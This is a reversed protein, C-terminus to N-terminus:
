RFNRNQGRGGGRHGGNGKGKGKGRKGNPKPARCSIMDHGAQKCILCWPKGNVTDKNFSNRHRPDKPNVGPKIKGDHGVRVNWEADTYNTRFLRTSVRPQENGNGYAFLAAKSPKRSTVRNQSKKYIAANLHGKQSFRGNKRQNTRPNPNSRNRFSTGGRKAMSNLSENRSSRAANNVALERTKAIRFIEDVSYSLHHPRSTIFESLPASLARLVLARDLDSNLPKAGLRTLISLKNTRTTILDRVSGKGQHLTLYDLLAAEKRGPRDYTKKLFKCISDFPIFDSREAEYLGKFKERSFNARVASAVKPDLASRLCLPTLYVEKVFACESMFLKRWQTSDIQSGAKFKANESLREPYQLSRPVKEKEKDEYRKKALDYYMDALEKTPAKIVKELYLARSLGSEKIRARHEPQELLNDFFEKPPEGTGSLSSTSSPSPISSSSASLTAMEITSHDAENASEDSSEESTEDLSSLMDSTIAGLYAHEVEIVAGLSSLSERQRSRRAKKKSVTKHHKVNSHDSKNRRSAKHKKATRKRSWREFDAKWPVESKNTQKERKSSSRTPSRSRDSRVPSRSRNDREEDRDIGKTANRYPLPSSSRSRRRRTRHPKLHGKSKEAARKRRYNKRQSDRIDLDSDSSSDDSESATDLWEGEESESNSSRHSPPSAERTKRAKGTSRGENSSEESSSDDYDDTDSTAGEIADEHKNESRKRKRDDNESDSSGSFHPSAPPQSSTNRGESKSTPHARKHESERITGRDGEPNNEEKKKAGGLPDIGMHEILHDTIKKKAGGLPDIGMHEILHDTTEKGQKYKAISPSPSNRRTPLEKGDRRSIYQLQPPLAGNEKMPSSERRISPESSIELNEGKAGAARAAPAGATPIEGSEVTNKAKRRASNERKRPARFPVVPSIRGSPSKLPLFPQVNGESVIDGTRIAAPISTGTVSGPYFSDDQALRSNHEETTEQIKSADRIYDGLSFVERIEPHFLLDNEEAYRYLQVDDTEYAQQIPMFREPIKDNEASGKVFLRKGSIYHNVFTACHRIGNGEEKISLDEAEAQRIERELEMRYQKATKSTPIKGKKGSKPDKRSGKKEDFKRKRSKESKSSSYNKESLTVTHMEGGASLICVEPSAPIAHTNTVGFASLTEKFTTDSQAPLTDMTVSQSRQLKSPWCPKSFPVSGAASIHSHRAHGEGAQHLSATSTDVPTALQHAQKGDDAAAPETRHIGATYRSPDNGSVPLVHQHTDTVEPAEQEPHIAQSVAEEDDHRHPNNEDGRNEILPGTKTRMAFSPYRPLENSTMPHAKALAVVQEANEAGYLQRYVKFAETISQRARAEANWRTKWSKWASNSMRPVTSVAPYMFRGGAGARRATTAVKNCLAIQCYRSCSSYSLLVKSGNKQSLQCYSLFSCGDTACIRFTDNTLTVTGDAAIQRVDDKPAGSNLQQQLETRSHPPANSLPQQYTDAASLRVKMQGEMGLQSHMIQLQEHPLDDSEYCKQFHETSQANLMPLDENSSVPMGPFPSGAIPLDQEHEPPAAATRAGERRSLPRGSPKHGCAAKLHIELEPASSLPRIPSVEAADAEEEDTIEGAPEDLQASKRRRPAAPPAIKGMKPKVPTNKVPSSSAEALAIAEDSNLERALRPSRRFLPIGAPALKPEFADKHVSVRVEGPVFRVKRTVAEPTARQADIDTVGDKTINQESTSRLTEM